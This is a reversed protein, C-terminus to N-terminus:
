PQRRSAEPESRCLERWADGFIGTGPFLDDFTDLSLAGLLRFIWLVYDIPKRGMLKSPGGRAVGCVLADPTGPFRHRAPVVLVFETVNLLGRGKARHIPKVWTAVQVRSADGRPVLSLVVPLAKRSTALAWGDYGTSLQELLRRHDVEGAYTPEDRYYKRSLGPYPPDAFALRKPADGLGELVSTRRVYWALQRCRKSCYRALPGLTEPLELRCFRCRRAGADCVAGYSMDLSCGM